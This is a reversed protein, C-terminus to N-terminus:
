VVPCVNETGRRNGKAKLAEFRESLNVLGQDKFWAITMAENAQPSGSMRWWGKGSLALRWARWEPVGLKKLFDAIPKPYKRQKLRVCRLKRRLWGDLNGLASKARAYRFYAVWGPLFRNLEGIMRNLSIGRNRRTIKRIRDKARKLSQPAIVLRGDKLIRHGLFSRKNSPAVASKSASVKLKLRKEIFRTLSAMVREGAAESHLYVNVDDAYRCFRHGRRELEKDLDDLMLNALLPSLPGGQPTGERNRVRVGNAMVGANLLGRVIKLLRKDGVHRALRAMLMDHNVRDFFKEIDLDVVIYRGDAVYKSAQRLADHASRGPRFGFSSESFLSDLVPTLVQLLAQQVLRDVVTPIGLQRKGGGPKPIEVRRVPSPRYSGSILSEMLQDQNAELWSELETVTMGDIGPAGKNAKVKKLAQNLNDPDAVEEM